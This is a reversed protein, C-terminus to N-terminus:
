LAARWVLDFALLFAGQVIIALGFGRVMPPKRTLLVVGVVLSAVDLAGNIRACLASFEQDTV